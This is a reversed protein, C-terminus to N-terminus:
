ALEYIDKYEGAVKAWSMAKARDRSNNGMNYILEHNNTLKEIAEKLSTSSEKEIILGNDDVLEKSGGTDTTIIPLGTAMAELISNSMGENLSPLIFIDSDQLINVIETHGKKDAFVVNANIKKALEQLSDKLNGDGVLTLTINNMEAIAEILYKYGKREILRGTSVLKINKENVIHNKPTFENIDIGNTIIEIEQMPISANALEKLKQSNVVVRKARSWIKRSLRKFVLKDLWYFRKNYFPVDSGRLSVIYPIDLKMAIFGCPIGFFAHILDFKEKKKLKKCYKYSKWSYTLLDKISQYHLNGNKNIDLYHIRINPAFQEIKFKDISSTVLDLELDPFESFEKLIYYTANGAGGGLPPFEYNLVLVRKKKNTEM